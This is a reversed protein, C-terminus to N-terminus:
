SSLKVIASPMFQHNQHLNNITSFTCKNAPIMQSRQISSFLFKKSSLNVWNPIDLRGSNDLGKEISTMYNAPSPKDTLQFVKWEKAWGSVFSIQTIPHDIREIFIPSRNWHNKYLNNSKHLFVLAISSKHMASRTLNRSVKPSFTM